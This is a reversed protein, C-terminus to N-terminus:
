ARQSWIKRSGARRFRAPRPAIALGAADEPKTMVITTDGAGIFADKTMRYPITFDVKEEREATAQMAAIVADIKGEQLSAILSDFPM